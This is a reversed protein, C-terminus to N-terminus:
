EGKNWKIQFEKLDYNKTKILEAELISKLKFYSQEIDDNIILYDYKVIDQMEKKANDLRTQLVEITDTNRKILRKKLQINDNTTIFVSSVLEKLKDKVISFGQVDIDFIVIKGNELAKITHKLSTGYYNNHVNAWELFLGDKIDKEFEEKSVFHYNVGDKEGDRKARTTHSISFYLKDKYEKLLRALLTSKGAGSPGSVVLIYSKNM